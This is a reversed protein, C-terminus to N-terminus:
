FCRLKLKFKMTQKVHKEDAASRTSQVTKVSNRSDQTALNNLKSYYAKKEM